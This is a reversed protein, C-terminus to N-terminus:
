FAQQGTPPRDDLAQRAQTFAASSIEGRDYRRPVSALAPPEAAPPRSPFANSLGWLVLVIVGLWFLTLFGLGVWGLGSMMGVGNMM